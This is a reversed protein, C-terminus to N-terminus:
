SEKRVMDYMIYIKNNNKDSKWREDAWAWIKRLSPTFFLSGIQLFYELYMNEVKWPYFISTGQFTNTQQHTYLAFALISARAQQLKARAQWNKNGLM